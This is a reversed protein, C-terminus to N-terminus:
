CRQKERVLTRADHQRHLIRVLNHPMLRLSRFASTLRLRVVAINQLWTM